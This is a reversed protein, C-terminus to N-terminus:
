LSPTIKEWEEGKGIFNAYRKRIVDCYKPDLEMVYCNRDLQECCILTSGSGGFLDIVNDGPRSSRKLARSALRVPKQTPHVYETTLDRHEYWIDVLQEFDDYDLNFVDTLNNLEKNVFHKKKEKWGLMCPEYMRHYDQGRSFVMSNKVWIVIQSFHWNSRKFADRNIWNNKNAFWWYIVADDMTVLYLNTLVDSYFKIADQDSLNDNFIKGGTGGFKKSSYDLGGPSKYDVNYPPDTFILNMKNDDVLKKVDEIKTSDGCMLKHKGIKYVKGSLSIVKENDIEPVTDETVERFQNLLKQLNAPERLYVAYNSFDIDPISGILNALVEADTKGVQDNDSLAYKLKLEETPAKVVSCEIENIGMERFARLRMNGGLVIGEENILLPKYPELEAIQKKLREFAEKTITRPNNEWIKLDNTKRKEIRM